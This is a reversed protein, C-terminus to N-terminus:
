DLTEVVRRTIRGGAVRLRGFSHHPESRRQTPSGPNFLWQGGVGRENVPAHSHGFVVLDLGPFWRQLRAARGVSPGSDHVVGVSVGGLELTLREPLLGVLDHDNNGLVAHVVATRRLERLAVVSVVDGAHVIVDASDLAALLRAPLAALGSRLHTDALVVVDVPVRNEPRAPRGPSV